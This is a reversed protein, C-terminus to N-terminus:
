EDELIERADYEEDCLISSCHPCIFVTSCGQEDDCWETSGDLYFERVSVTTDYQMLYDIPKKCDPCKIKKMQMAGITAGKIPKSKM